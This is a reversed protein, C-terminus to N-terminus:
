NMLRPDLADRLGDGVLNIAVVAVLIVLGPFTSIWWANRLYNRGGSALAGWEPTPPQAGLGLFSLSAAAIIARGLGQTSLVIVPAFVNPLIHSVMIRADPCGVVRAAEVYLNHKESLVTARVLRTYVPILSVGVAVMLNNLNTGLVAVIVMALLIGPFALLVDMLRMILSDVRRGYFGAILGLIVGFFAGIGVSIFGVKLSIQGGYLVQSFVDRGIYDTGFLHVPSPAAFASQPEAQLPDYPAVLPAFLAGAVLVGLVAFGIIAAHRRMLRALSIGWYSERNWGSWQFRIREPLLSTSQVQADM